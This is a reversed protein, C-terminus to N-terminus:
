LPARRDDPRELGVLRYGDRGLDYLHARLPGEAQHNAVEVIAYRSAADPRALDDRAVRPLDVCVKSGEATRVRLGGRYAARSADENPTFIGARYEFKADGFAGSAHAFDTACLASGSGPSDEIRADGLPSLRSLYRRVTIRWREGLAKRLAARDRWNTYNGIRVAADLLEPRFRSIIRAAWAGDRETMRLFAPNPYGGKWREPVYDRASYYGFITARKARDWPREISGLTVFDEALYEFDLYYAHGLRRSIGDWAWQSGFCDGFDIYYHRVHGPSSEADSEDRALWVNMTNQERSDFHNLWAALVRGGRLERRDEHSIVDNPDDDRTGEYKFPGITRGPLWESATARILGGRKSANALVEELAKKDFPRTVGTNDTVKLGPKLKLLSPRFYVVTDCASWYGMAHYIRSAIATAGTAREPESKTDLKLMYKKKGFRVRFGPNAGNAKGQDVLWAGDEAGPDLPAGCSGREFEEVTMPRAGLRNQFWSSNPAEDLSNANVAEGGPDAKFFQAIPRFLMHDAGDWAFPSEYPEPMCLKHGPKDADPEPDPRCAVWVPREDPDRAMPERLPFRELGGACGSLSAPAALALVVLFSSHGSFGARM